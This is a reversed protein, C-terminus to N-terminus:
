RRGGKERRYSEALLSIYHTVKQEKGFRGVGDLLQMMCAPCGTAVQEAGTSNIDAIKRTSIGQSTEQHTLFYSGGSGCCADAKGMEKFTVGPISKLIERPEATVKMTKKLHCSDHYTVVADVKGKPKRYDIVKVLFTSLDYTRTSWYEAKPYYVPDGKLVEKDAASAPVAALVLVLASLFAIWQKRM